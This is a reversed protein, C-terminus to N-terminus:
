AGRVSEFAGSAQEYATKFADADENYLDWFEGAMVLATADAQESTVTGNSTARIQGGAVGTIFNDGEGYGISILAGAAGYRLGKVAADHASVPIGEPAETPLKSGYFNDVAEFITARATLEDESLEDDPTLLFDGIALALTMQAPTMLDSDYTM